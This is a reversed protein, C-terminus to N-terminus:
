DSKRTRSGGEGGSKHSLLTNTSLFHNYYGVFTAQFNRFTAEQHVFTPQSM